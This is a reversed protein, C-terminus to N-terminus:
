AMGAILKRNTSAGHFSADGFAFVGGDASVLRYGAGSASTQMGVVPAPRRTGGMSGHFVADGFAFIGGDAAVLWYGKGSLTPAMGVIPSVLSQGGMSGHFGADPGFAFVGGDSAVFWYGRGSPCAAMAVVPSNLRMAGTSGFFGADGFAFVGGDRGLLWYGNGSPTAAMGVLPSALGRGAMDGHHTCAGRATVSGDHRAVWLGTRAPNAALGVVPSFRPPAADVAPAPGFAQVTGDTAALWYGDHGPAVPTVPVSPAPAGGGPTPPPAVPTPPPTVPAPQEAAVFLDLQPFTGGIVVSSGPAMWRDLVTAFVSRFDIEPVLNRLSPTLNPPGGVLGGKVRNGIVLVPGANGHDTGNSGNEFVPRGFESWVVLTVRDAFAPSLTAFFAEIADDVRTMLTAHAPLQNEHTDFGGITTHFLRTGLDANILRAVLTLTGPFTGPITPSYMPNASAAANMAIENTDGILDGLSGLGHADGTTAALSDFLRRDSALTRNGGFFGGAGSAPLATARHTAGRVLLPVSSGLTIARFVDNADPVGDLFRGMWGSGPNGGSSHGGMWQATAVFHSQSLGTFGVNNVVAVRGADFRAKLKTLNPHLGLQPSLPLVAEPEIRVTPRNTFYRSNVYPVVTNLGDNGGALFVSVLVNEGPRLPAAWAAAQQLFQPTAAVAGGVAAMQLFRRRSWALPHDDPTSLARHIEAVDVDTLTSWGRSFEHLYRM